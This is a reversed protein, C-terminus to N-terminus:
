HRDHIPMTQRARLGEDEALQDQTVGRHLRNLYKDFRGAVEIVDKLKAYTLTEGKWKAYQRATTLANRIQRGNMEEDKLEVLDDRLDNVDITTDQLSDLKDFFNRWIQLREYPGLTPYHLALQIRSKFTENFIGLRLFVSVLANRQLDELSRQELFVDAEDLLVVCKRLKDLHLVSRRM